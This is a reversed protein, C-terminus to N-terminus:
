ISLINRHYHLHNSSIALAVFKNPNRVNKRVTRADAHPPTNHHTHHTPQTNPTPPPTYPPADTTITTPCLSRTIGAPSIHNLQTPLHERKATHRSWQVASVPTLVLGGWGWWWWVCVCEELFLDEA